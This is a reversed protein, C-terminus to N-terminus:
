FTWPSVEPIIEVGNFTPVENRGFRQVPFYLVGFNCHIETTGGDRYRDVRDIKAEGDNIFVKGNAVYPDATVVICYRGDYTEGKFWM